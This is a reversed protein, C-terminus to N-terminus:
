NCHRKTISCLAKRTLPIQLGSKRFEPQISKLVPLCVSTRPLPQTIKNKNREKSIFAVKISMKWISYVVIKSQALFACEFTALNQIDLVFFLLKIRRFRVFSKWLSWINKWHSFFFCSLTWIKFLVINTLLEPTRFLLSNMWKLLAQPLIIFNKTSYAVNTRKGHM